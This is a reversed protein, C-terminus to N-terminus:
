RSQREIASLIAAACVPCFPRHGKSFMKCDLAPRFLDKASYGAGEFLGVKAAHKEDPPTPVPTSAAVLKRWKLHDRRREATLNPEWPEVGRPYMEGYSVGSSYYEDGLGAFSHGFEHIFVYEDYENDSAFSAYFNYIGGGGYRGTNVMIYIADYPANAAIDRVAHQDETMLYRESGFTNFSMSLATDRFIGKTPEDVGSERSPSEVGWVNIQAKHKDYPPTSLLLETFRAADERFKGMQSSDYGDGLIVIDLRQDSPGSHFLRHVKLGGRRRERSVSPSAPDLAQEHIKKWAGAKDRVKLILRIKDVPLPLRLTEEFVRTTGKAGETTQWEHFLSSWGVSFLLGGKPGAAYVEALTSGLDTKDVLNTRSGPWAGEVRLEDLAFSESRSDGLHHLDIRLTADFRLPGAPAAGRSAGPSLLLAAGLLLAAPPPPRRRAPM